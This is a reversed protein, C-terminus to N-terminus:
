AIKNIKGKPNFFDSDWKYKCIDTAGNVAKRYREDLQYQRYSGKFYLHYRMPCYFTLSKIKGQKTVYDHKIVEKGLFSPGLKFTVSVGNINLSNKDTM